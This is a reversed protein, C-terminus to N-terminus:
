NLNWSRRLSTGVAARCSAQGVTTATTLDQGTCSSGVCSAISQTYTPDKCLCADDGDQCAGLPANQLCTQACAVLS